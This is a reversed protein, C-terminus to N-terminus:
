GPRRQAPDPPTRRVIEDPTLQERATSVAWRHGYPDRLVGYREGWFMEQVPMEVVAGADVARRAVAVVDRDGPEVHLLMPTGGVTPPALADLAPTEESVLRAPGVALEVFLVTGDPLTNRFLEATGFAQRYFAVAGETGRV